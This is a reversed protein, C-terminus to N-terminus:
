LTGSRPLGDPNAEITFTVAGNGTGNTPAVSIWTNTETVDWTCGQVATVNVVGTHASSNYNTSLPSLVYTCPTGAQRVVISAACCTGVAPNIVQVLGTRGIGIANTALQYRVTANGTGNTAPLLTIWNNTTLAYWGCN